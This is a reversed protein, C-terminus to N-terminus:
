LAWRGPTAIHVEAGAAQAKVIGNISRTVTATQAYPGSGSAAGMSTVTIREGAILVDYPESTTSWLDLRDTTTFTLSTASSSAGSGLTTSASDYRTATDDYAGVQWPRAPSCVLVVDWSYVSLTETWGEVILDLQDTGVASPPNDITTRSGIRMACWTPILSPNRALNLEIRTWRLEDVTGLHLRWYTHGELQSDRYLNAELEDSYVGNLAISDADQVTVSSGGSRTLVIKNRLRQDDDTPEPPAAVHGSDFDLAMAPTDSPTAYRAVRTLYGLGAGREHLVGQDAGECERLLELLTASTQAGMLATDAAEGLLTLPVGEEECLRSLRDGASEGAYGDFARSASYSQLDDATTTVGFIHSWLADVTATTTMQQWGKLRGLAGSFTGSIGVPTLTGAGFWAPEYTITGGSASVKVRFSLWQTPTYASYAASTDLVTAGDIDTVLLRFVTSSVQWSWIYGATTTWRIMETPSGPAAAALKCSWAFQWGATTSATTFVGSMQSGTPSQAVSAAGPPGGDVGLTTGALFGAQGGSILNALQTADSGDELPWHGRRTSYVIQRYMPSRLASQGQALRRLIGAGAIPAVVDNGSQDWRVPWQPVPTVARIVDFRYNDFTSILSGVNTNGSVRWAYVGCFGAEPHATDDVECTWTTPESGSALWARIQLTAGIIRARYAIVTGATYSVGTSTVSTLDTTVGGVVKTIKCGITGATGFEVHLRYHNSTSQVRATIAHVWAAGTTVASLSVTGTIEVDAGIASEVHAYTATNASALTCTGASGTAAWSSPSTHSWALGSVADTGLGPSVTRTFADDIRTVRVELPTGRALRGYHAGVPNLRCYDGSRNDLTLSVQTADVYDGEDQRGVQVTVGEAVRVDDTIDTFAWSSPDVPDAGPAICAVLPLPTTPFVM